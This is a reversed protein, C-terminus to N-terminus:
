RLQEKGNVIAKKHVMDVSWNHRKGRNWWKRVPERFYWSYPLTWFCICIISVVWARHYTLWLIFRQM